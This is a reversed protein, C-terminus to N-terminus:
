AEDQAEAPEGDTDSGEPAAEAPADVDDAAESLALAPEDGACSTDGAVYGDLGAGTQVGAPGTLTSHDM